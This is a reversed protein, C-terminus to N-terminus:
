AWLGWDPLDLISEEWCSRHQKSVVGDEKGDRIDIIHYNRGWPSSRIKGTPRRYVSFACPWNCHLSLMMSKTDIKLTMEHLGDCKKIQLYDM